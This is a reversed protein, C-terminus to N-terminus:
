VAGDGGEGWLRLVGIIISGWMIRLIVGKRLSLCPSDLGQRSQMSRTPFISSSSKVIGLGVLQLARVEACCVPGLVRYAM